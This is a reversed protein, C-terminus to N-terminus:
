MKAYSPLFNESRTVSNVLSMEIIPGFRMLIAVHVGMKKGPEMTCTGPTLADKSKTYWKFDEGKSWERTAHAHFGHSAAQILM